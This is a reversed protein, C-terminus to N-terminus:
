VVSKRDVLSAQVWPLQARHVSRQALLQSSIHLAEDPVGTRLAKWAQQVTTEVNAGTSRGGGTAGLVNMSEKM